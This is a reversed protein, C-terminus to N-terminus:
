ILEELFEINIYPSLISKIDNYDKEVLRLKLIRVIEKAGEKEGKKSLM